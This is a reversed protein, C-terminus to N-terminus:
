RVLRVATAPSEGLPASYDDFPTVPTSGLVSGDAAYATVTAAVYPQLRTVGHRDASLPVTVPAAGAATLTLRKTKPPAVVHVQDTPSDGDETRMRWGIPRTDAGAAPLLLRLDQRTKVITGHVAFALVGHGPEQVTLLAATAGNVRGIWRVKVVVKNVAPVQAQEMGIAVWTQLLRKDDPFVRGGLARDALVAYPDYDGPDAQYANPMDGHYITRGNRTVTTTLAAPGGTPPVAIEALGSGAVGVAESRHRVTGDATFDSGVSISVTSGGPGVTVAFGPKDRYLTGITAVKRDPDFPMQRTMQDPTAGAAGEYWVLMSKKVFGFRLPLWALALRHNGVDGAYLIKIQDPAGMRWVEGRNGAAEIHTRLGAIWIRDGALSGRMPSNILADDVAAIAVGPAWGPMPVIGTQLGVLAAVAAAVVGVRLRRTRRHRSELREFGIWPDEPTDIMAAQDAFFRRLDTESSM